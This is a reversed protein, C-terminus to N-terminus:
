LEDWNFATIQNAEAASFTEMAEWLGGIARMADTLSFDAYKMAIILYGRVVSNYYGDDFRDM